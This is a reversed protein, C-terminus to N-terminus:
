VGYGYFDEVQFYEKGEKSKSEGNPDLYIVIRCAKDGESIAKDIVVKAYGLNEATVRGFINSTMMCLSKRGLVYDGFPCRNNGLIIKEKDTSIVYFDGNIRNKIDVLVSAVEDTNLRGNNLCDQYERSLEEGLKNGIVSIFGSSEDIGIVDEIVEALDRLLSRLFIDRDFNIRLGAVKDQLTVPSKEAYRHGVYAM